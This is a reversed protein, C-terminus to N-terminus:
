PLLSRVLRCTTNSPPHVGIRAATRRITHDRAQGPTYVGSDLLAIAIRMAKLQRNHSVYWERPRGAPLRKKPLPADGTVPFALPLPPTLNSAAAATM